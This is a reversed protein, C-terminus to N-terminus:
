EEIRKIAAYSPFYLGSRWQSFTASSIGCDQYFRGKNIGKEALVTEIIRVIEKSNM